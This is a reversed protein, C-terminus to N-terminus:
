FKFGIGGTINDVNIDEIEYREFQTRIFIRDTIKFEIGIKGFINTETGGTDNRLNTILTGGTWQKKVDLVSIGLIGLFKIRETIELNLVPSITIGNTDLSLIDESISVVGTPLISDRVKGLDIYSAELSLYKNVNYGGFLNFVSDSTDFEGEKYSADGIDIGCYWKKEDAHITTTFYSLMWFAFISLIYKKSVLLNKNIMIIRREKKIKV